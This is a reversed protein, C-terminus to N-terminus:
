IEYEGEFVTKAEGQLFATNDKFSVKLDGGETRVTVTPTKSIEGYKKMLYSYAVAVSGSGCSLTKGSGREYIETSLIPEKPSSLSCASVKEVNIGDQFLGCKYTKEVLLSLPNSSFFVIHPNGVNVCFIDHYDIYLGVKKFREALFEGQFILSVLGMQAIPEKLNSLNVETLRSKTKVTILDQLVGMKNRAFIASCRVGNGCMEGESGDSNFIRMSIEGDSLKEVTILGDSGVGFRRNSIKVALEPLNYKKVEHYDVFIYDNGCAQMKTFKM